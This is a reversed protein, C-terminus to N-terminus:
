RYRSFQWDRDSLVKTVVAQPNIKGLWIISVINVTFRPLNLRTMTQPMDKCPTSKIAAEELSIDNEKIIASTRSGGSLGCLRRRLCDELVLRDVEEQLSCHGQSVLCRM